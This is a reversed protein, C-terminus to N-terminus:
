LVGYHFLPLIRLRLAHSSYLNWVTFSYHIDRRNVVLGQREEGLFLQM